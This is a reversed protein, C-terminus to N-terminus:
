ANFERLAELVEDIAEGRVVMDTTYRLVRWGMRSALNYKVLDLEMGRGRSHRSMGYKTGGEIEIGLREAVFAFDFRWKRGPCFEYERVPTLKYAMCHQAFLEEGKSLESPVDYKTRKRM